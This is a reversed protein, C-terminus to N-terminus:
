EVEYHLTELGVTIEDGPNLRHEAVRRGNVKVGNTSALDAVVWAGDENRLEAHRRSVNPDDLTLDSDRSRGIVFRSGALVTRRGGGVLMARGAAVPPAELPRADRDVSYVMTHGFDAQEPESREDEPGRVLMAQIGFEGLGLRDDTRFEVTPRTILALGEARAHELLYDSLEKLVGDEYGEFQERDQSSLYVLYQNPVYTRSISVTKNDQMEKALKRAIEVPQVKSKFTRSFSGQFLGELKSELNRLISM